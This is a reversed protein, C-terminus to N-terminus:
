IKGREQLSNIVSLFDKEAQAAPKEIRFGSAAKHGGGNLMHAILSVDTGTRSRLYGQTLGPKKELLMAGFNTNLVRGLFFDAFGGPSPSDLLKYQKNDICIWIFKKDKNIKTKSLFLSWTIFNELSYSRTIATMCQQYNGGLDTLKAVFRLVKANVNSNQLGHTDHLTGVLLCTSIEPTITVGLTKLLFYVIECASSAKPNIFKLNTKINNDPHHDINIVPCRMKPLPRNHTSLEWKATDLCLYIDHSITLANNMNIAEINEIGPLFNIPEKIPDECFLNVTKGISELGMKLALISGVSDPDPSIHAHALFTEKNLITDLILQPIKM